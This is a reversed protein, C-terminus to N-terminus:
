LAEFYAKPCFSYKLAGGYEVPTVSPTLHDSCAKEAQATRGKKIWHVILPRVFILSHFDRDDGFILSSVFDMCDSYFAVPRDVVALFFLYAM